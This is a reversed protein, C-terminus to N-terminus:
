ESDGSSLRKALPSKTKFFQDARSERRAKPDAVSSETPSITEDSDAVNKAPSPTVKPPSTVAMSAKVLEGGGGTPRGQARRRRIRYLATEFGRLTMTFGKAHLAELIAQRSVGADLAHEVQDFVDRLRATESRGSDSTALQELAQSLDNSTM